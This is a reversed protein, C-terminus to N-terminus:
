VSNCQPTIHTSHKRDIAATATAAEDDDNRLPIEVCLRPPLPLLLSHDPIGPLRMEPMTHALSALSRSANRHFQMHERTGDCSSLIRMSGWADHMSEASRHHRLLTPRKQHAAPLAVRTGSNNHHTRFRADGVHSSGHSAIDRALSICCRGFRPEPVRLEGGDGHWHRWDM